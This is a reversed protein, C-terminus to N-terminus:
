VRRLSVFAFMAWRDMYPNLLREVRAWAFRSFGPTLSRMGVGGSLLYRFPLCPRILEISLDPFQSEFKCRDRAFVIWPLASNASSLHGAPAFSWDAAEPDFPEHHLHRYVLSSWWTVWPEIMLVKGGKRLCRTAEAFFLRVDPIHHLVNTMIVARLSQNEFPLRQADAIVNVGTCCIVDSTIVEPLVEDCFGAGSGLELINGEIAPLGAAQTRYWEEYIARLLPKSTIIQKRLETTAPDDLGLSATLPHALLRRVFVFSM